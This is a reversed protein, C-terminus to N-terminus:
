HQVNQTVLMKKSIVYFIIGPILPMLTLLFELRPIGFKKASVVVVTLFTAILMVPFVLPNSSFAQPMLGIVVSNVVAGLVFVAVWYLIRHINLEIKLQKKVLLWLFRAFFLVSCFVGIMFWSIVAFETM